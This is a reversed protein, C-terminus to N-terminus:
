GRYGYRRAIDKIAAQQKETLYGRQTLFSQVSLLFEEESEYQHRELTVEIMCQWWDAHEASFRPRRRRSADSRKPKDDNAPAPLATITSALDHWTKGEAQLTRGIASAAAVVEGPQNSSLLLILKGIRGRVETRMHMLDSSM